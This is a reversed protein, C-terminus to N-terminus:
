SFKFEIRNWCSFLLVFGSSAYKQMCCTDFRGGAEFTLNAHFEDVWLFFGKIGFTIKRHALSSSSRASLTVFSNSIFYLFYLEPLTWLSPALSFGVSQAFRRITRLCTRLVTDSTAWPGPSLGRMRWYNLHRLNKRLDKNPTFFYSFFNKNINLNINQLQILALEVENVFEEVIAPFHRHALLVM